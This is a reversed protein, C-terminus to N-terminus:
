PPTRSWAVGADRFVADGARLVQTVADFLEEPPLHGARLPWRVAVGADPADANVRVTTSRDVCREAFLDRAGVCWLDRVSAARVPVGTSTSITGFARSVGGDGRFLHLTLTLAGTAPDLDHVYDCGGPNRNPCQFSDAEVTVVFRTPEPGLDACRDGYLACSGTCTAAQVFGCVGGPGCGTASSCPACVLSGGDREVEPGADPDCKMPGADRVGADAV